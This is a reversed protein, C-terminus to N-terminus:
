DENKGLRGPKAEHPREPWRHKPYRGALDKRVESWSGRWFGPLDSTIQIPRDAPSLLEFVVPLRAITPHQDLGFVDQVRIRVTPVAEGDENLYSIDAHRGTPLELFPPALVDLEAGEPWPLSARLLTHLNLQDLDAQGTADGLYASLWSDLTELLGEISWDPWPEGLVLHCFTVRERLRLSEATWPLAALKTSRIRALLAALTKPGPQPRQIQEDLHLSGLRRQVRVVLDDRASDWELTSRTAVGEGLQELTSIVAQESIPAALRIRARDRRGDLDAAIVFESRSLPDTDSIWAGSGSTLQFQGPRRLRAIRDPYAHALLQGVTTPRLAGLSFNIGARRALDECRQHVRRLRNRDIDLSTRSYDILAEIRETLDVPRDDPRGTAIDGEDLLAAVAVATATPQAIVMRSLRPHLPLRLMHEGVATLGDADIAGLTTLLQHATKLSAASPQTPLRLQTPDGGWKAIELAFNSLEVSNIEPEPFALRSGHEVKSWLRYAVGPGTRGARGSRQEASSRSTSITTLRTMGTRSDFRPARVLGSDIVVGVRDVTLSTEAIDTSLIISRTQHERRLSADQEDKPISGALRHVSINDGIVNRLADRLRNIEGIGPLFVLLDGHDTSLAEVIVASLAGILENSTPQRANRRNNSMPRWRLDIDYQRGECSLVAAGDLLRSMRDTDATASMACIALDPRLTAGVELSFALGLDTTLNREHVEDFILAGIGPLEPDHQLRRTLIGETVVEIKARDGIIAEDRTRYGVLEGLTTGSLDAMRQAVARAAVRRPELVVIRGNIRPDGLLHLPVLTSKGAGPPATIVCRRTLGLTEGIDDLIAQIPLDPLSFDHSTPSSM